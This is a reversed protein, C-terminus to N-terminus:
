QGSMRAALAKTFGFDQYPFLKLIRYRDGNWLLVDSLGPQSGTHTQFLKATTHVSIMGTVRDGEPVQAIDQETAPVIVGSSNVTTTINQWGGSVFAGSSRLISFPQAFDPDNIIDSVDIM